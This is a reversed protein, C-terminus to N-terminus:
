SLTSGCAVCRGHTRADGAGPVEMPAQCVPCTARGRVALGEWVSSLLEDLMPEGSGVEDFLSPTRSAPEARRLAVAATM